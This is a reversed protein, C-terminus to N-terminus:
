QEYYGYHYETISETTGDMYEVTIENWKMNAYAHNYFLTTNRKKDTTAGPALPGTYKIRVYDKGSIEDRISDGVANYCSWQFTIYKIEKDTNNRIKFTWEVGGVYDMTWRMGVVTVPSQKEIAEQCRTCLGFDTTHGLPDGETAGCELCTKPEACTAANFSHGTVPIAKDQKDGCVSCVLQAVGETECKPASVITETYNHQAAITETTKSNCVSCEKVLEGQETCTAEKHTEVWTHGTAPIEETDGDTDCLPCHKIATGSETCTPKVQEVTEWEHECQVSPSTSVGVVTFLVIGALAGLFFRKAKKKRESKRILMVIWVVLAIPAIVICLLCLFGCISSILAM